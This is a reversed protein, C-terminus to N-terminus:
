RKEAIATLVRDMFGFWDETSGEPMGAGVEHPVVITKIGTKQSLWRAERRGYLPTILIAVPKRQEILRALRQLHATSPPIGPRPEIYGIIKFGFDHALYEFLRHFAIFRKSKLPLRLWERQKKKLRKRFSDLNAEYFAKNQVDMGILVSTIAEAVKLINEPSFHYHPNGLPHVDGMARDVDEEKGIVEIFKSCDVNGPMGPQVRPNRSSEVLVQLYGAELDLGNYLLIDAKRLALIMSPRAEVYHPDQSPKVLVNVEVRDKGIERALTGIWPLTAVINVKAYAPVTFLLISILCFVRLMFRGGKSTILVM